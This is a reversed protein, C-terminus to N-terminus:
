LKALEESFVAFQRWDLDEASSVEHSRNLGIPPALAMPQLYELDGLFAKYDKGFFEVFVNEACIDCHAFGLNHLEIIGAKIQEFIVVKDVLTVVDKLRSGVRLITVSKGNAKGHEVYELQHDYVIRILDLYCPIKSHHFEKFIGDRQFTVHHGNPTRTRVTPVLHNKGIPMTQSIIWRCIKILDISFSVRGSISSFDYSQILTLGYTGYENFTIAFLNLANVCTMVAPISNSGRPFSKYATGHFKNILEDSMSQMDQETAKAEGKMVIMNNYLATFDPRKSPLSSSDHEDLLVTLICLRKLVNQWLADLAVTSQESTYNLVHHNLWSDLSAEYECDELTFYQPYSIVYKSTAVSIKFPLPEKLIETFSIGEVVRCAVVKDRMSTVLVLLVNTLTLVAILNL